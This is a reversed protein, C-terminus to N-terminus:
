FLFVLLVGFATYQLVTALAWNNFNDVTSYPTPGTGADGGLTTQIIGALAM